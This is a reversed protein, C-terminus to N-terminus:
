VKSLSHSVGSEYSAKNKSSLFYLLSIVQFTVTSLASTRTHTTGANPVSAYLMCTLSEWQNLSISDGVFMIKKGRYRRLFDQGNFRRLIL